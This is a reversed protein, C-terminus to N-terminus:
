DRPMSKLRRTLSSTRSQSTSPCRRDSRRASWQTAAPSKRRASPSEWGACAIPSAPPCSDCSRMSSAKGPEGLVATSPVQCASFRIQCHGGPTLHDLTPIPRLLELGPTGVDVLFMTPGEPARALVIAFAAGEFGTIFWKEGDLVWGDGRREARTRLLKPDSGAGPMPETMAFCSRVEGKALPVLYRKRQAASTVHALLHINGEDPAAANLAQPGLLSRGAEELVVAIERWSLGLGGLEKGATPLFLGEAKAKAQLEGRVRELASVNRVVEAERPIVQSDVFRRVRERLGVLAEGLEFDIM